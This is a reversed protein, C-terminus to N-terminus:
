TCRGEYWVDYVGTAVVRVVTKRSTIVYGSLCMENIQLWTELMTKRSAEGEATDVPYIVNGVGKYRFEKKSLPIFDTATIRDATECGTLLLSLLIAALRM